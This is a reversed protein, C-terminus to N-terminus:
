RSQSAPTPMEGSPAGQPPTPVPMGPRQRTPPPAPPMTLLRKRQLVASVASGELLPNGKDDTGDLPGVVNPMAVAHPRALRSLAACGLDPGPLLAQGLFAEALLQQKLVPATPTAQFLQLYNWELEFSDECVSQSRFNEESALVKAWRKLADEYKTLAQARAALRLQEAEYMAKRVAVSEPEAEVKARAYQHHFNTLTNVRGYAFLIDAAERSKVMEPDNRESPKLPAPAAGVEQDHAKLFKEAKKMLAAEEDPRMLVHNARGFETWMEHARVWAGGAWKEGAGIVTPDGNSFKDGKFWGPLRWGSEDFWGEDELREGLFSQALGPYDRFIVTTMHSPLRQHIPDQIPQSVGPIKGDPPPLPEQAYAYWARAAALADFVPSLATLDPPATPEYKGQPPPLVPFPKERNERQVTTLEDGEGRTRDGYLSPIKKNEELYRYVHELTTCGLKERLRRVLRPHQLCLYKEVRPHGDKDPQKLWAPDRHVPDVGSLEFLTQLPIKHDHNSIKQHYYTGMAFRLEPQDQNQREGDALLQMGRAMYFFKDRPLDCQVSVNYALNWSQFLWPTLFHPQLKTISNTLIELEDWQNRKQCEKANWWLISSAVGRMGTLSLRLAYGSLDVTGVNQERLALDEARPTLVYNRFLLAATFLVVILGIYILKRHLAQQQFSTAM